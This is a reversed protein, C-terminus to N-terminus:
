PLDEPFQENRKSGNVFMATMPLEQKWFCSNDTTAMNTLPDPRFSCDCCLVKWLHKRGLKPENPWIIETSFFRFLWFATIEICIKLFRRQFRKALHVSIQYSADISSGRYLQENRGSENIKFFDALWFCSKGTTAMNTLPNPRFSFYKYLVKWLHKRGLRLENPQLIESSFILIQFTLPRCVVPWLRSKNRISQNKLNKEESVTLGFSGFSQLFCRHATRELSQVNQGSGNVFM